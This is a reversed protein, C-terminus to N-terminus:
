AFKRATGFFNAEDAAAIEVELTEPRAFGESSKGKVAENISAANQALFEKGKRSLAHVNDQVRNAFRKHSIPGEDSYVLDAILRSSVAEDVSIAGYLRAQTIISRIEHPELDRIVGQVGPELKLSAIDSVGPRRYLFTWNKVSANAFHLEM